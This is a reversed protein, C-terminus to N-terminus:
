SWLFMKCLSCRSAVYRSRRFHHSAPGGHQKGRAGMFADVRRALVTRPTRLKNTLSTRFDTYILIQVVKCTVTTALGGVYLIHPASRERRPHRAFSMRQGVGGPLSSRYVYVGVIGYSGHQMSSTASRSYRAVAGLGRWTRGAAWVWTVASTDDASGPGGVVAGRLKSAFVFFLAPTALLASEPMTVMVCFSSKQPSSTTTVLRTLAPEFSSSACLSSPPSTSLGFVATRLRSAHLQKEAHKRSAPYLRKSSNM